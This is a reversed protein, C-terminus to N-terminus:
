RIIEAAIVIVLRCGNCDLAYGSAQEFNVDGTQVQQNIYAIREEWNGGSHKAEQAAKASSISRSKEGTKGRQVM